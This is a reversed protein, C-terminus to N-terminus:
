VIDEVKLLGELAVRVPAPLRAPRGAGDICALRVRARFLAQGARAIRQDLEVSAAGLRLVRSEVDLLDDFAAPRLYDAEIRSVVFVLGSQARLASQDVGAARLAETRGREIFKLYNAYYVLGALDTDEYYVRVAIRHPESM